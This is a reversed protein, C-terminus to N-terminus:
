LSILRDAVGWNASAQADPKQENAKSCGLVACIGKGSTPSSGSRCGDFGTMSVIAQDLPGVVSSATRGLSGVWEPVPASGLRQCFEHAFACCNRHIYHYGNGQWSHALEGLVHTVEQHSLATHGLFLSGRYHHSPHVKPPEIASVGTGSEALGYSWEQGYVEVGVHFAGGGILLAVKNFAEITGHRTADYISLCVATPSTDEGPQLWRVEAAPPM